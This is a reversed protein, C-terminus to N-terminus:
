RNRAGSSWLRCAPSRRMARRNTAPLWCAAAKPGLLLFAEEFRPEFGTLFAMNGFHERDAYVALWDCAARDYAAAVRAEYTAAPIQPQEPSTGFDPLSVAKLSVPMLLGSHPNGLLPPMTKGAGQSARLPPQSH